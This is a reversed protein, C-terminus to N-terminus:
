RTMRERDIMLTLSPVKCHEYRLSVPQDFIRVIMESAEKQLTV